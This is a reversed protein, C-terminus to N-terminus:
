REAKPRKRADWPVQFSIQHAAKLAYPCLRMKGGQMSRRQRRNGGRHDFGCCSGIAEIAQPWFKSGFAGM